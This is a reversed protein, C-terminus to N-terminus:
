LARPDLKFLLDLQQSPSIVRAWLYDRCATLRLEEAGTQSLYNKVIQAMELPNSVRDFVFEQESRKAPLAQIRGRFEGMTVFCPEAACNLMQEVSHIASYDVRTAFALLLKHTDEVFQIPLMQYAEMLHAPVVLPLQAPISKAPLVPYGWQASLAAAVQDENVFGLQLAVDGIRSGSARHEQLAVKFQEANLYGRSYLVLGLPFRSPRPAELAHTSNSLSAFRRQLAFELCDARCFWDSSFLVGKGQFISKWPTTPCEGNACRKSWNEWHLGHEWLSSRKSATAPL